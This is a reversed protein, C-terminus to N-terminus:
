SGGTYTIVLGDIGYGSIMYGVPAGFVVIVEIGVQGPTAAPVGFQPETRDGTFPNVLLLGYPLGPRLDAEQDSYIGGTKAAHNEAATQVVHALATVEAEKARMQMAMYNPISIAAIVGIIVIVLSLEILSFGARSPM